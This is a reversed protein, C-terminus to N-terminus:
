CSVRKKSKESQYLHNFIRESNGADKNGFFKSSNSTFKAKNRYNRKIQREIEHILPDESEIVPGFGMTRYDFYGSAYQRARYESEDFQYYIVPKNMYAFDATVSSYDSIMLRSEVLLRQIDYDEQSVIKIRNSTTSFEDTYKQMNKHLYFYVKTNTDELIKILMENNILTQYTNYYESELFAEKSSLKNMDRGLWDRWTPMIVIQNKSISDLLKDFRSFGLFALRNEPYGFNNSIYNYEALAGCVFLEFKTVNYYLYKVNNMTIGHQLFIRHGNLIGSTHLVYFIPPSPNASKQSSINKTACIYYIWHKISGYEVINGYAKLKEADKYQSSIAYHANIDPHNLKIYAYFEYGNDRASDHGESILWLEQGTLYQYIKYLVVIPIVVILKIISYIDNLKIYKLSRLFKNLFRM